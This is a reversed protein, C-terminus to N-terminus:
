LCLNSYVLAKGYKGAKFLTFSIGNFIGPHTSGLDLAILLNNMAQEIQGLHCLVLGKFYYGSPCDPDM